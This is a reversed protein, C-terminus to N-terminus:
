ERNGDLRILILPMMEPIVQARGELQARWEREERDLIALRHDQVQPLGIRVVARRRAALAYEEGMRM